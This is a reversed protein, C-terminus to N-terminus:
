VGCLMSSGLHLNFSIDDFVQQLPLVRRAPLRKKELANPLTALSPNEFIKAFLM